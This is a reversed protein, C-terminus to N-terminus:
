WHIVINHGSDYGCGDHWFELTPKLEAEVCYDWVLKAPGLLWDGECVNYNNANHPRKYDDHKVSMVIAHSRGARAERKAREPIQDIVNQAKRRNAAAIREEKLKRAEEDKRAQEQGERIAELTIKKLEMIDITM